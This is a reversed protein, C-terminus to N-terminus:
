AHCVKFFQIGLDALLERLQELGREYYAYRSTTHESAEWYTGGNYERLAAHSRGGVLRGDWGYLTVTAAGLHAAFAVAAHLSHGFNALPLGARPAAGPAGLEFILAGPCVERAGCSGQGDPGLLVAPLALQGQAYRGSLLLARVPERLLTFAFDCQHALGMYDLAITLDHRALDYRSVHDAAPGDCLIAVSAGRHRGRLEYIRGLEPLFRGLLWDLDHKQLGARARELAGFQGVEVGGEPLGRARYFHGRQRGLWLEATRAADRDSLAAPRLTAAVLSDRAPRCAGGCLWTRLCFELAEWGQDDFGGLERFWEARVALCEVPLCVAWDQGDDHAPVPALDWRWSLKLAGAPEACWLNTDLGVLRPSAVAGPEARLLEALPVLWDDGPRAPASLFALFEGGALEAARNRRAARNGDHDCVVVRPLEPLRLGPGVVILEKLLDTPTSMLVAQATRQALEPDDADVIVSFQM